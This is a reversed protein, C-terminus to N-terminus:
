DGLVKHRASYTREESGSYLGREPLQHRRLHHRNEVLYM